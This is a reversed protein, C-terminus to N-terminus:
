GDQSSAVIVKLGNEAAQDLLFEFREMMTKDIAARGLKDHGLPEERMRMEKRAGCGGFHMTLPQFDPWLPFVRVISLGAEKSLQKFDAAVVEPRWDRWMNTGAHSAWYNCGTAFTGADMFGKSSEKM